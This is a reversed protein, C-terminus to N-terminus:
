VPLRTGMLNRFVDANPALGFLLLVMVIRLGKNTTLMAAATAASHAQEGIVSFSLL